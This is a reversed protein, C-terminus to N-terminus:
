SCRQPLQLRLHPALGPPALCGYRSILYEFIALSSAGYTQFTTSSMNRIHHYILSTKRPLLYVLNLLM